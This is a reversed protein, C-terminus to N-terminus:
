ALRNVAQALSSCETMNFPQFEERQAVMVSLRSQTEEGRARTEGPAVMLEDQRATRGRRSEREAEPSPELEDGVPPLAPPLAGARHQRLFLPGHWWMDSTGLATRSIGRTGPDAPNDDGRVHHWQDILSMQLISTVRNHLFARLLRKGTLWYLVDLADTWYM